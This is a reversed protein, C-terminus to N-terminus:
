WRGLRLRSMSLPGCRKLLGSGTYVHRGGTGPDVPPGALHYAGDGDRDTIVFRLLGAADYRYFSSQREAGDGVTEALLRDADDYVWTRHERVAVPAVGGVAAPPTTDGTPGKEDVLRGRLDFTRVWLARDTNGADAGYAAVTQNGDADYGFSQVLDPEGGGVTRTMSRVRGLPDHAYTTTSVSGAVAPDGVAVSVLRDFADYRSVTV